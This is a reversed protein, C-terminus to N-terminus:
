QKHQKGSYLATVVDLIILLTVHSILSIKFVFAPNFMKARFCFVATSIVSVATLIILSLRIPKIRDNKGKIASNMMLLSFCFLSVTTIVQQITLEAFLIEDVFQFVISGACYIGSLGFLIFLFLKFRNQGSQKSVVADDSRINNKDPKIEIDTESYDSSFGESNNRASSHAAMLDQYFSDIDQYRKQIDVEMGKLLVREEAPTIDPNLLHPSKLESSNESRIIANAPLTGTVARYITSAFAFVDTWPGQKGHTDYQEMPAYGTKVNITKSTPTEFSYERSSGFDILVAGLPSLIINDPSIDRHLIGKKHIESLATVVPHLKELTDTLTTKGGCDFLYKKFSIGEVYDMVIYATNNESFYANVRVVNSVDNIEKLREAEDLFRKKGKEYIFFNETDEYPAVTYNDKKRSICGSPYYEKVAIKRNDPIDWGIYTIGFGGQGLARGVIYRGGIVSGIPLQYDANTEDKRHNCVPCIGTSGDYVGVMCHLCKDQLIGKM